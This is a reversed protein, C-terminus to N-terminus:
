CDFDEIKYIGLGHLLSQLKGTMTKYKGTLDRRKGKHPSVITIKEVPIGEAYQIHVNNHSGVVNTVAVSHFANLFTQIERGNLHGGELIIKVLERVPSLRTKLLEAFPNDAFRFEEPDNQKTRSLITEMRAQREVRRQAKKSKKQSKEASSPQLLNEEKHEVQLNDVVEEAELLKPEPSLVNKIEEYSNTLLSPSIEQSEQSNDNLLIISHNENDLFEEEVAENALEIKMKDVEEFMSRLNEIMKRISPSIFDWNNKVYSRQFRIKKGEILSEKLGREYLFALNKLHAAGDALRQVSTDQKAISLIRELRQNTACFNDEELHFQASVYLASCNDLEAARELRERAENPDLLYEPFEQLKIHLEYMAEPFGRKAAYRLEDIAKQAHIKNKERAYQEFLMNAKIIRAANWRKSIALGLLKEKPTTGEYQMFFPGYKTWFYQLENPNLVIETLFEPNENLALKEYNTDNKVKFDIKTLHLLAYDNGEESLRTLVERYTRLGLANKIGETIETHSWADLAFERGDKAQGLLYVLFKKAEIKLKLSSDFNGFLPWEYPHTTVNIAFIQQSLLFNIVAILILINKIM